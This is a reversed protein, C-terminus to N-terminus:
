TPSSDRQLVWAERLVERWDYQRTARLSSIGEGTLLLNYKCFVQDLKSLAADLENFTPLRRIEGTNARHAVRKNVLRRVRESADELNRLDARISRESLYTRRPGVIADFSAHGLDLGIPTSPYMQVHTARDIVEPNELLQYLMRWLSQSHPHQDVFSRIGVTMAVVYNRCMWDFFSGPKLIRPNERAVGQLDWFIEQKGLLDALDRRMRSLWRKWRRRLGFHDVPNRGFAKPRTRTAM